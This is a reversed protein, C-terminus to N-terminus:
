AANLRVGKRRLGKIVAKGIQQAADDESANGVTINDISVTVGGGSPWDGRMLRSVAERRMVGEGPTLMAPVSDTGRPIFGGLALYKPPGVFGGRSMTDPNVGDPPPDVNWGVNITRPKTMENLQDILVGIKDVLEKLSGQIKDFETKIPDGFKILSLDTIKDGNEDVLIGADILNKIWPEMNAPIDVGFKISENVLDNIRPAMGALITGTETGGLNLLNFDNIIESAGEHLRQRQFAPGLADLSIGYKSATEEMKKFSVSVLEGSKDFNYGLQEGQKVIADFSGEMQDLEANADSVKKDFDAMAQELKKVEATFEATKKTNLLKDLNFGASGAASQLAGMGGFDGIFANRDKRVQAGEGGGFLKGLLGGAIGAIPGLFPAFSGLAGAIGKVSGLAGGFGSGIMSGQANMGPIFSTLSGLGAALFKGAAGSFISGSPNPRNPKLNPAYPAMPGFPGYVLENQFGPFSGPGVDPLRGAANYWQANYLANSQWDTEGMLEPRVFPVVRGPRQAKLQAARQAKLQQDVYDYSQGFVGNVPDGPTPLMGPNFTMGPGKPANPLRTAILGLLEAVERLNEIPSLITDIMRGLQATVPTLIGLLTQLIPILPAFFVMILRKGVDLLNSFQDNLDGAAKTTKDDMVLGLDKAKKRLEDIDSTLLPLLEIGTRGFLDTVDAARQMPDEVEKVARAIDYFAADPNMGRINKFSLGLREIAAVASKDGSAIRDSMAGIAKALPDLQIGVQKGAFALEQLKGPAIGTQKSLNEIHDAFALTQKIALGIVAPGAYRQVVGALEDLVPTAKKAADTKKKLADETRSLSAKMDDFQKAVDPLMEELASIPKDMRAAAQEVGQLAQETRQLAAEAQSTQAEVVISLDRAM